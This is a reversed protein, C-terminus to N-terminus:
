IEEMIKLWDMDNGSDLINESWILDKENDEESIMESWWFLAPLLDNKSRVSYVTSVNNTKKNPLVLGPIHEYKGDPDYLLVPIHNQLSEEITTSSYSLLLDSAVLHEVFSGDIYIDYCNSIMLSQQFEELSLGKQPRFRIALYLGTVSEVAKIVDNINRIYEDITEYVWPRFLNWDKPTGAHLIIKENKHSAFLKQRFVDRRDDNLNMQSFLLPGTEVAQSHVEDQQELFKKAWPTQLAVFPYKSNFITHAHISWELESIDGSHPVHSGHSILIAPIHEHSCIEGLAYSIGLSHQSFVRKSQVVDMVRRLSTISGYLDLMKNKLINEIFGFLPVRVQVGCITSKIGHDNFWSEIHSACADYKNHFVKHKDSSLDTPMYFFSFSKGSLMEQIHTKISCRRILLYVPLARDIHKSVRNLLDPMNYTDEPAVLSNRGRGIIPFLLLQFEFVLRKLWNKSTNNVKACFKYTRKNTYEININHSDSYNKVILGLINNDVIDIDMKDDCNSIIILKDPNYTQVVSDIIYLMALWYHLYFRFYFIWTKEFTHQIGDINMGKLFPRVGEIIETSKILTNRHGDKCLFSLTNEYPINRQALEISVSPQLSIVVTDQDIFKEFLAVEDKHGIFILSGSM